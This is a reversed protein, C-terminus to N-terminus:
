RSPRSFEANWVVRRQSNDGHPALDVLSLRDFRVATDIAFRELRGHDSIHPNFRERLPAPLKLSADNESLVDVISNHLRMLLSTRELLAVRIRENDWGFMDYGAVKVDFPTTQSIIEELQPTIKSPSVKFVGALTTHHPWGNRDFMEDESIPEFFQVLCHNRPEIQEFTQTNLVENM